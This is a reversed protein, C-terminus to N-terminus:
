FLKWGGNQNFWLLKASSNYFNCNGFVGYIKKWIITSYMYRLKEWFQLVYWLNDWYNQCNTYNKEMNTFSVMAKFNEKVIM